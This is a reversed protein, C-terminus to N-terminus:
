QNASTTPVASIRGTGSSRAPTPTTPSCPTAVARRTCRTRPSRSVPTAWNPPRMGSRKARRWTSRTSTRHAVVTPSTSREMQSPRRRKLTASIRNGSRKVPPPTTLSSHETPYRSLCGGTSRRRRLTTRQTDPTPTRSAGSRTAPRRTSHGCTATTAPSSCPAM